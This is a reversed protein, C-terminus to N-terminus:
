DNASRVTRILDLMHFASAALIGPIIAPVKRGDAYIHQHVEFKIGNSTGVPLGNHYVEWTGGRQILLLSNCTTM